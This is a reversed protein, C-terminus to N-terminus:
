GKPCLHHLVKNLNHRELPQSLCGVLLHGQAAAWGVSSAPSEVEWVGVCGCRMFPQMEAGVRPMEGFGYTWWFMHQKSSIPLIVM